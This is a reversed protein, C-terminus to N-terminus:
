FRVMLSEPSQYPLTAAALLSSKYGSLALSRIRGKIKSNTGSYGGEKM